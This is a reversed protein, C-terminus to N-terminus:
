KVTVARVGSFGAYGLTTQRSWAQLYFTVGVLAPQTVVPLPLDKATESSSLVGSAIVNLGNLELGHFWGIDNYPIPYSYLNASLGLAFIGADGNDFKLTLSENLAVESKVFLAPYRTLGDPWVTTGFSNTLTIERMGGPGDAPLEILLRAETSSKVTVDVGNVKVTAGLLNEGTLKVLGSDLHHLGSSSLLKPTDLGRSSSAAWGANSEVIVALSSFDGAANDLPHPEFAVEQGQAMPALLAGFLSLSFLPSTAFLSIAM